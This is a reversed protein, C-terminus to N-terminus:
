GFIARVLRIKRDAEFTVDATVNGDKEKKPINGVNTGKRANRSKQHITSYVDNATKQDGFINEDTYTLQAHIVQHSDAYLRYSNPVLGARGHPLNRFRSTFQRVNLLGGKGPNTVWEVLDDQRPSVREGEKSMNSTVIIGAPGAARIKDILAPVLLVNEPEVIPVDMRVLSSPKTPDDKQPPILIQMGELSRELKKQVQVPFEFTPKYRDSFARGHQTSQATFLSTGKIMSKLRFQEADSMTRMGTVKELAHKAFKRVHGFNYKREVGDAGKLLQDDRFEDEIVRTFFLKFFVQSAEWACDIATPLNRLFTKTPSTIMGLIKGGIAYFEDFAEKIWKLAGGFTSDYVARLLRASASKQVNQDSMSLKDMGSKDKAEAIILGSIASLDKVAEAQAILREHLATKYEHVTRFSSEGHAVLPNEGGRGTEEYYRARVYNVFTTLAGQGVAMRHDLNLRDRPDNAFSAMRESYAKFAQAIEADAIHEPRGLTNIVTSLLPDMATTSGKGTYSAVSSFHFVPFALIGHLTKEIEGSVTHQVKEKLSEHWANFEGALRKSALNNLDMHGYSDAHDLDFKRTAGTDVYMQAALHSLVRMYPSSADFITPNILEWYSRDLLKDKTTANVRYVNGVDDFNFLETGIYIGHPFTERIAEGFNVLKASHAM